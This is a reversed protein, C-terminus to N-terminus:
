EAHCLDCLRRGRVREKVVLESISDLNSQMENQLRLTVFHIWKFQPSSPSILNNTFIQLSRRGTNRISLTIFYASKFIVNQYIYIENQQPPTKTNSGCGQDDYLLFRSTDSTILEENIIVVETVRTLAMCLQIKAFAKKNRRYM